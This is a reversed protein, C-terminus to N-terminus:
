KSEKSMSSYLLSLHPMYDSELKVDTAERLAQATAVLPEDKECLLYVCQHYTSGASPESLRITFRQSALVAFPNICSKLWCFPVLGPSLINM